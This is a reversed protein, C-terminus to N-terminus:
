GQAPSCGSGVELRRVWIKRLHGCLSWGHLGSHCGLFNVRARNGGTAFVAGPCVHALLPASVSLASGCSMQAAVTRTCTHPHSLPGSHTVTPTHTHTTFIPMPTHTIAHSSLPSSAKHTHSQLCIHSSSPIHQGCLLSLQSVVPVAPALTIEPHCSPLAQIIGRICM